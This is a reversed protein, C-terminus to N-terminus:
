ERLARDLENVVAKLVMIMPVQMELEPRVSKPMRGTSDFLQAM